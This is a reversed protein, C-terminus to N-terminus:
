YVIRGCLIEKRLEESAASQCNVVIGAVVSTQSVGGFIYSSTPRKLALMSSTKRLPRPYVNNRNQDLLNYSFRRANDVNKNAEEDAYGTIHCRILGTNM